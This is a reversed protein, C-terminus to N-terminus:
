KMNICLLYGICYAFIDKVDFVSGIAIRMIKNHELHLLRVIHFLQLIEISCAFILISLAITKYPFNLFTRFFSYLLIVVLVDGIFPRIFQDHIYIAIFLEVLFLLNFFLLYKLHFTFYNNSHM